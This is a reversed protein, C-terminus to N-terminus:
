YNLGLLQIEHQLEEPKDTSHLLVGTRGKGWRDRLMRKLKKIRSTADVGIVVYAPLSQNTLYQICKKITEEPLYHYFARIRLEDLEFSGIEQVALSEQNFLAVILLDKILVGDPKLFVLVSEKNL